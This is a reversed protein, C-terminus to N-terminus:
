TLIKMDGDSIVNKFFSEEVLHSHHLGRFHEERIFLVSSSSHHALKELILFSVLEPM